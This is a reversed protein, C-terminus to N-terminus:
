GMIKERKNVVSMVTSLIYPLMSAVPVRSKIMACDQIFM